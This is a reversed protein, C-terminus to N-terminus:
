QSLPPGPQPEQPEGVTHAHRRDDEPASLHRDDRDLYAEHSPLGSPETAGVM